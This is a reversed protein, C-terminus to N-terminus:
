GHVHGHSVEEWKGVSEVVIRGIDPSERLFFSLFLSMNRHVHREFGIKQNSLYQLLLM